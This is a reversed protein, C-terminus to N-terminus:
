LYSSISMKPVCYKTRRLALKPADYASPVLMCRINGVKDYRTSVPVYSSDGVTLTASIKVLEGCNPTM